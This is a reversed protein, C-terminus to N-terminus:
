DEESRQTDANESRVREDEIQGNRSEDRIFTDSHIRQRQWETDRVDMM